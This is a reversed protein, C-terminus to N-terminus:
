FGPTSQDVAASGNTAPVGTLGSSPGGPVSATSTHTNTHTHGKASVTVATPVTAVQGTIHPGILNRALQGVAYDAAGDIWRRYKSGTGTFLQAALTALEVLEGNSLSAVFRRMRKDAYEAALGDLAAGGWQKYDDTMLAM